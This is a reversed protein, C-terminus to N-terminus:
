TSYVNGSEIRSSTRISTNYDQLFPTYSYVHKIVVEKTSNDVEADM